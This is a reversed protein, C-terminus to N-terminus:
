PNGRRFYSLGIM